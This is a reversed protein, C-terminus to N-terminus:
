GCVNEVRKEWETKSAKKLEAKKIEDDFYKKVDDFINGGHLLRSLVRCKCIDNMIVRREKFIEKSTKIALM